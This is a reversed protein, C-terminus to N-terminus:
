MLFKKFRSARRRTFLPVSESLLDILKRKAMNARYVCKALREYAFVEVFEAYRRREVHKVFSAVSRIHIAREVVHNCSIGCAAVFSKALKGVNKRLGSLFFIQLAIEDFKVTKDFNLGVFFLKFPAHALAVIRIFVAFKKCYQLIIVLRKECVGLVRKQRYFRLEFHKRWGRFIQLAKCDRYTKAILNFAFASKEIHARKRALVFFRACGDTRFRAIFFLQEDAVDFVIEFLKVVCDVFHFLNAVPLVREFGGM